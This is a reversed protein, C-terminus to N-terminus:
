KKKKTKRRKKKKTEKIKNKMFIEMLDLVAEMVAIKVTWKILKLFSHMILYSVVFMFGVKFVWFIIGYDM